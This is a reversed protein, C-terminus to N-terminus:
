ESSSSKTATYTWTGGSDTEQSVIQSSSYSILQEDSDLTEEFAAQTACENIGLLNDSDNSDISELGCTAANIQDGSAYTSSIVGDTATLYVYATASVGSCGSFEEVLVWTGALDVCDSSSSGGGSGSGGSGGGSSTAAVTGGVVAAGAAVIGVTAVTSLGAGAAVTATTATAAASTAGATGAAAGAGAAGSSAAYLGGAVLGFRASSEVVDIHISDSFGALESPAESLETGLTIPEDSPDTQWEPIKEGPKVDTSFIQTKIVQNAQNVTLFVYEISGAQDTPAPLLATYTNKGQVDMGAFIFDAEGKARFYCRVTHIQLKDKVSVEVKIRKGPVAYALPKHKIKTTVEVPDAMASVSLFFIMFLSTALATLSKQMCYKGKDFKITVVGGQRIDEVPFAFIMNIFLCNDAPYQNKASFIFPVALCLGKRKDVGPNQLVLIWNNDLCLHTSEM